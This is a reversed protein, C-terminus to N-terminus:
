LARQFAQGAREPQDRQLVVNGPRNEAIATDRQWELNDPSRETLARLMTAVRTDAAM